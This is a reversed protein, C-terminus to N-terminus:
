GVRVNWDMGWMKKSKFRGRGGEGKAKWGGSGGGKGEERRWRAAKLRQRWGRGGECIDPYLSSRLNGTRSRARRFYKWLSERNRRRGRHLIEQRRKNKVTINEGRRIKM